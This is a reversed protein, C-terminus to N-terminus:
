IVANARNLKNIQQRWNLNEDIKIGLYKVSNTSYLRKGNLKLKFTTETQKRISKLLVVETKSVNLCIKKANLWYSLYKLDHGFQKNISKISNNFNLLNTDDAFHGVKGTNWLLISIM